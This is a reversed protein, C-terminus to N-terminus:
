ARKKRPEYFCALCYNHPKFVAVTNCAACNKLRAFFKGTYAYDFNPLRLLSLRYVFIIWNYYSKDVVISEGLETRLTLTTHDENFVADRLNMWNTNRLVFWENRLLGSNEDGRKTNLIKQKIYFIKHECTISGEIKTKKAALVVFWGTVVYIMGLSILILINSFIYVSDVYMTMISNFLLLLLLIVPLLRLTSYLTDENTPIRILKM